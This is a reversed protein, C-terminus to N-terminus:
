GGVERASESLGAMDFGPVRPAAAPLLRAQIRRALELENELRDREKELDRARELGEAMLNFQRATDWLADDGGIPIRHALKGAGFAEAGERLAAIGRTISGGMGRVMKLDTNALPLLLFALFGLAIIPVVQPPNERVNAFLGALTARLSARASLLYSERKWSYYDRRVGEVLAYGTFGLAVRSSDDGINISAQPQPGARTLRFR